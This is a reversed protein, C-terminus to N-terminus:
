LLMPAPINLPNPKPPAMKRTGIYLFKPQLGSSAVAVHVKPIQKVDNIFQTCATVIPAM